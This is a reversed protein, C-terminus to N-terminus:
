KKSIADFVRAYLYIQKILSAFGNSRTPSLGVNLGIDQFFKADVSVCKEDVVALATQLRSRLYENKSDPLVFRVDKWAEVYKKQHKHSMWCRSLTVISVVGVLSAFLVILCVRIM